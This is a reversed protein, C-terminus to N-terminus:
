AGVKTDAVHQAFRELTSVFEGLTGGLGDDSFLVTRGDDYAAAAARGGSRRFYDARRFPCGKELSVGDFFSWGHGSQGNSNFLVGRLDSGDQAKETHVARPDAHEFVLGIAVAIRAHMAPDTTEDWGGSDTFIREAGSPKAGM